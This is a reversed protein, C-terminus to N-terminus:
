ASKRRRARGVLGLAGLGFLMVSAPEPVGNANVETLEVNDLASLFNNAASGNYFTLNTMGSTAVFQVQFQMWNLMAAPTAPNFYHARTGGNISLDITAPFFIGRELDKASGVWFSVEYTSGINTAVSQSLGSSMSNSTVGAIDAWQDGHQAQFTVGAQNFFENLISTDVGVVTWGTILNSGGPYNIYGGAPSLPTDPAEFSGNILGADARATILLLGAVWLAVATTRM